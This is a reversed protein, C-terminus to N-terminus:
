RRPARSRRLLLRVSGPNLAHPHAAALVLHRLHPQNLWLPFERRIVGGAEGKGRGTIIEVCRVGEAAARHMFTGLAAYASQATRGHLDLTRIVPLKGERFRHWTAADIGGPATGVVLAAPVHRPPRIVAAPIALPQPAAVDAPAVGAPAGALVAAPATANPLRGPAVGSLPAVLRAYSAWAARDTETLGRRRM